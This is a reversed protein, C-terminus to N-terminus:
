APDKLLLAFFLFGLALRVDWTILASFTGYVRSGQAEGAKSARSAPVLSFPGPVSTQSGINEYNVSAGGSRGHDLAV